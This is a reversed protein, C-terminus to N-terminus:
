TENTNQYLWISVLHGNRFGYVFMGNVDRLEIEHAYLRLL